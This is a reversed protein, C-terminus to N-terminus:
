NEVYFLSMGKFDNNFTM